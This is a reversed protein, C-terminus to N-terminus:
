KVMRVIGEQRIGTRSLDDAWPLLAPVRSLPYHGFRCHPPRDVLELCVVIIDVIVIVAVIVVLVAVNAAAATQM